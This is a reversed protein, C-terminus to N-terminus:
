CYILAAGRRSIILAAPLTKNYFHKIQPHKMCFKYLIEDVKERVSYKLYQDFHDPDLVKDFIHRPGKLSRTNKILSTIEKAHVSLFVTFEKEDIQEDIRILAVKENRESNQQEIYQLEELEDYENEKKVQTFDGDINMTIKDPLCEMKRENSSCFMKKSVYLLFGVKEGNLITPKKVM